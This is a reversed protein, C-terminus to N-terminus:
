YIIFVMIFQNIYNTWYSLLFSLFIRSSPVLLVNFVNSSFFPVGLKHFNLLYLYLLSSGGYKFMCPFYAVFSILPASSNSFIYAVSITSESQIGLWETLNFWLSMFVPTWLKGTYHGANFYLIYLRLWRHYSSKFVSLHCAVKNDGVLGVLRIQLQLIVLM